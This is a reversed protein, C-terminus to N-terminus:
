EYLILGPKGDRIDHSSQNSLPIPTGIKSEIGNEGKSGIRIDFIPNIINDTKIYIKGADGASGGIGANIRYLNIKEKKSIEIRKSIISPPSSTTNCGGRCDTTRTDTEEIECRYNTKLEIEISASLNSEVSDIGNSGKGGNGGKVKLYPSNIYPAHIRINGSNSTSKGATDLKSSVFDIQKNYDELSPYLYDETKYTDIYALTGNYQDGSTTDYKDCVSKKSSRSIILKESLTLKKPVELSNLLSEFNSTNDITRATTIINANYISKKAILEINKGNTVIMSLPHFIIENGKITLNRIKNLNYIGPNTIIKDDEFIIIEESNDYDDINLFINTNSDYINKIKNEGSNKFYYNLANIFHTEIETKIIENENRNKLYKLLSLRYQDFDDINSYNKLFHVNELLHRNIESNYILISDFQSMTKSWYQEIDDFRSAPLLFLRTVQSISNRKINLYTILNSRFINNFSLEELITMAELKKEIIQSIYENAMDEKSFEFLSFSKVIIPVILDNEIFKFIQFYTKIINTKEQDFIANSLSKSLMTTALDIYEESNLIIESDKFNKLIFKSIFLYKAALERNETSSYSEQFKTLIEFIDSADISNNILYNLLQNKNISKVQELKEIISEINSSIDLLSPNKQQLINDFIFLKKNLEDRLKNSELNLNLENIAIEIIELENSNPTASKDVLKDVYVIEKKSCSNLLALLIAVIFLKM